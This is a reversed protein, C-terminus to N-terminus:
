SKWIQQAMDCTKKVDRATDRVKCLEGCVHCKGDNKDACLVCITSMCHDCIILPVGIEMCIPCEDVSPAEGSTGENVIDQMWRLATKEIFGEKHMQRKPFHLYNGRFYMLVTTTSICKHVFFSAMDSVGSMFPATLPTSFIVYLERDSTLGTKTRCNVVEDMYPSMGTIMNSFLNTNIVVDGTPLTVTFGLRRSEAELLSTVDVAAMSVRENHIGAKTTESLTKCVQRIMKMLTKTEQKTNFCAVLRPDKRRLMVTGLMNDVVEMNILCMPDEAIVEEKGEQVPAKKKKASRANASKKGM